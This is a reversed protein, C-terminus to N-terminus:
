KKKWILQRKSKILNYFPDSQAKSSSPHVIIFDIKREGISKEMEALFKLNLRFEDYESLEPIEPLELLLDIDGGKQTDDIRSGYLFLKSSKWPVLKKITVQIAHLETETLRM